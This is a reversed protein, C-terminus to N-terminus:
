EWPAEGGGVWQGCLLQALRHNGRQRLRVQQGGPRPQPQPGALQGSSGLQADRLRQFAHAAGWAGQEGAVAGADCGGRGELLGRHAGELARGAGLDARQVRHLRRRGAAAHPQSFHLLRADHHLHTSPAPRQAAPQQPQEQTAGVAAPFPPHVHAAM